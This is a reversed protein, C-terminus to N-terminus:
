SGVAQGTTVRRWAARLRTEGASHGAARFAKALDRYSDPRHEAMVDRVASDLQDDTMVPGGIPETPERQALTVALAETQETTLELSEALALVVTGVRLAHTYTSSM